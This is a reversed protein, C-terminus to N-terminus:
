EMAGNIFVVDIISAGPVNPAERTVTIADFVNFGCSKMEGVLDAFRYSNEHRRRVSTEAIVYKVRRLFERAGRVVNLEYGETDIKLLIDGAFNKGAFLTDLRRMPVEVIKQRESGGVVHRLVSSRAPADALQHITITGDEAGAAVNHVEGARSAVIEDCKERYDPLAEVLVLYAEPFAKYLAPTGNLVGVDVVTRIAGLNALYSPSWGPVIHKRDDLVARVVKSLEAAAAAAGDNSTEWARLAAAVKARKM